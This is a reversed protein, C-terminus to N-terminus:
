TAPQLPVEKIVTEAAPQLPGLVAECVTVIVGVTAVGTNVSPAVEIRQLDLLLTVYVAVAAFEVPM